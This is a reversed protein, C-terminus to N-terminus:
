RTTELAEDHTRVGSGTHKPMVPTLRFSTTVAPTHDSRCHRLCSCVTYHLPGGARKGPSCYNYVLRDISSFRYNRYAHSRANHADAFSNTNVLTPRDTNNGSLYLPNGVLKTMGWVYTIYLTTMIM